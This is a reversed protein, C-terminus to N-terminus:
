GTWTMGTYASLAGKGGRPLESYRYSSKGEHHQELTWVDVLTSAVDHFLPDSLLAEPAHVGSAAYNYMFHLLYAGSDLEYNRTGVWGGRGIKREWKELTSPDRWRPSYSNAYPDQITFYASSRLAGEVVRRLAPRSRLLPVYIAMQVASDRTWQEKIDGTSVFAWDDLGHATVSHALSDYLVRGCLQALATVNAPGLRARLDEILPQRVAPDESEYGGAWVEPPFPWRTTPTSTPLHGNIAGGAPLAHVLDLSHVGAGTSVFNYVIVATLLGIVLSQLRVLRAQGRM